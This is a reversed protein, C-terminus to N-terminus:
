QMLRNYFAETDEENTGFIDQSHEEERGADGGGQNLITVDPGQPADMNVKFTLVAEAGSGTPVPITGQAPLVITTNGAVNNGEENTGGTDDGQSSRGRNNSDQSDMVTRQSSSEASDSTAGCRKKEHFRRSTKQEDHRQRCFIHPSLLIQLLM